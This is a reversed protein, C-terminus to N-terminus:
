AVWGSLRGDTGSLASRTEAAGLGKAPKEGEERIAQTKGARLTMQAGSAPDFSGRGVGVGQGPQGADASEAVDLNLWQRGGASLM